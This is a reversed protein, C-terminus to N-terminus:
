FIDDKKVLLIGPLSTSRHLVLTFFEFNKSTLIAIDNVVAFMSIYSNQERLDERFNRPAKLLHKPVEREQSLMM